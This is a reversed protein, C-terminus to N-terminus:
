DKNEGFGTSYPPERPFGPDDKTCAENLSVVGGNGNQANGKTKQKRSKRAGGRRVGPRGMEIPDFRPAQIGQVHDEIKRYPVRTDHVYTMASM